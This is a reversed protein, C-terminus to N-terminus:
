SFSGVKSLIPRLSLKRKHVKAPGYITPWRYPKLKFQREFWKERHDLEIDPHNDFYAELLDGKQKAIAEEAEPTSLNKYNDENLLHESLMQKIYVDRNIVYPGLNKDSPYCIIKNLKRLESLARRQIPRLNFRRWTPLNKRLSNMEREFKDFAIEVKEPM